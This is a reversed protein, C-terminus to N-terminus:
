IVKEKEVRIDALHGMTEVLTPPVGMMISPGGMQGSGGLDLNENNRDGSRTPQRAPSDSM